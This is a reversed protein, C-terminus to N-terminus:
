DSGEYMRSPRECSGIACFVDEFRQVDDGFYFFAQGQTPYNEMEVVTDGKPELFLIRGYTYCISACARRAVDFWETETSNNVLLIAATTRGARFEAVLKKIFKPALEKHYPPNLFVDGRWERILGNEQETYFKIAQMTAQALESSAPDLDIRGGFVIRV